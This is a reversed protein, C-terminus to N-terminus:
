RKTITLKWGLMRATDRLAQVQRGYLQVLQDRSVTVTPSPDVSEWARRFEIYETEISQSTGM